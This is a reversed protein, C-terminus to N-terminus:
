EKTSDVIRFVPHHPAIRELEDDTPDKSVGFFKGTEARWRKLYARLIPPREGVPVEEVRIAETRRGLKLRGEGSARINRVWHTEGRPAVLYRAGDVTLPNVPTSRWKGSKRGKVFLVRSGRLSLGLRTVGGVLPNFVFRTLPDPKQYDAM